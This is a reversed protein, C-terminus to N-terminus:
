LQEIKIRLEMLDPHQNIDLREIAWEYFNKLSPYQSKKRQMEKQIDKGNFWILYDKKEWFKPQNFRDQYEALSTEFNDPTVKDVVKRFESILELAETKCDHLLLSDPLHGSGKTWTTKIQKQAATKSFEGLAWRVAQYDKLSKASVELWKAIEDIGPSDKHSWKFSPNETKEKHKARWCYDILDPELLYNEICTRHTLFVPKREDPRLLKIDNTPQIDFDRDRFVVYQQKKEKRGSFYGDAFPRLNFKGGVSVIAPRNGSIGYVIKEKLLRYDLSSEKGECFRSEKGECFITKGSIVSM